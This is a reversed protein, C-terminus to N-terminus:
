TLYPAATRSGLSPKAFHRKESNSIWKWAPAMLALTLLFFVFGGRQHLKGTLFSMDVNTALLTLTVIRIANKVISLPLSLLVFTVRARQGQLTGHAILLTTILLAVSSNIGSCETAIKISVGPVTFVLGERLVPVRLTLFFWYTLDASGHQLAVIVKDAIMSPIPVFFLLVALPFIGCIAARQGFTALFIAIVFLCFSFATLSAYDNQNFATAYHRAVMITTSAIAAFFLAPLFSSELSRFIKERENWFLYLVIVPAIVIYSSYGEQFSFSIIKALKTAFLACLVSVAVSFIALRNQLPCVSIQKAESM